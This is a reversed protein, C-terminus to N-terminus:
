GALCIYRCAINSPRAIGIRFAREGNRYTGVHSGNTYAIALHKFEESITNTYDYGAKAYSTQVGVVEADSQSDGATISVVNISDRTPDYAIASGIQYSGLQRGVDIGKGNDLGRLFAARTDPMFDGYISYLIPYTKADIRQGEAVIFGKPIEQGFFPFMMGVLLNDKLFNQVITTPKAEELKEIRSILDNVDINYRKEEENYVLRSGMNIPAVVKVDTM